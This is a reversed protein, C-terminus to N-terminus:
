VKAKNDLEEQFSKEFIVGLCFSMGSFIIGGIIMHTSSISILENALTMCADMTNRENILNFKL